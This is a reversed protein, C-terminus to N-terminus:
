VFMKQLLAQRITKLKNLKQQHLSIVRDLNWLVETIKKQEEVTPILVTVKVFSDWYLRKRFDTVGYSLNNIQNVVDKRQLCYDMFEPYISGDPVASIYAPSVMGESKVVGIAGQWARMMNFVLDGRYVHKYLSKDESRRVQKGLADSDLEGNSVGHHISVSLIDLDERGRENRETYIDGLKCQAWVDNFGSFRIGPVNEGVKPFLNDLMSNKVVQLQEYKLQHLTITKDLSEFLAGIQKQEATGPFMFELKGLEKGSIESFTSGAAAREAKEKIDSGMSFVFYPDVDDHCVLSQFGQNTAGPHKLIAMNGIGARSTFLVTKDAPLIKASSNQLGAETIKRVSGNAFIQDGIEAPAYWDIDGDWYDPNMTSPTGGGVIDAVDSLKRKEWDDAFGDFRLEPVNHVHENM